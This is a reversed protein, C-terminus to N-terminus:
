RTPLERGLLLRAPRLGVWSGRAGHDGRWASRAQCPKSGYAGGRVCGEGTVPFRMGTGPEPVFFYSGYSDLCYEAVNGHVDHLGFPNPPFSGVPAALEFRDDLNTGELNALGRLEEEDNGTSWSTTTGARAAYEWQAESPLTLFCRWVLNRAESWALDVVPFSSQRDGEVVSSVLRGYQGRTMEYKSIFFPALEVENVPAETPLAYRDIHPTGEATDPGPPWAGIRVSRGPILVFILPLDTDPDLPRDPPPLIPPGPEGNSEVERRATRVHAFEALKSDPDFGIPVLGLQPVIVLGDYM